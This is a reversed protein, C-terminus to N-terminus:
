KCTKLCGSLGHRCHSASASQEKTWVLCCWAKSRRSFTLSVLSVKVEIPFLLKLGLTERRDVSWLRETGGMEGEAERPRSEAMERDDIAIFIRFCALLENSPLSCCYPERNLFKSFCTNKKLFEYGCAILWSETKTREEGAEVSAELQHRITFLDVKFSPFRTNKILVIIKRSM